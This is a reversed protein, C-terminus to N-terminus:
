YGTHLVPEYLGEKSKGGPSKVLRGPAECPSGSRALMLRASGWGPLMPCRNTSDPVSITQCIGIWCNVGHEEHHLQEPAQGILSGSAFIGWCEPRDAPM